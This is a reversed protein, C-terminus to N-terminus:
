FHLKDDSFKLKWHLGSKSKKYVSHAIAGAKGNM